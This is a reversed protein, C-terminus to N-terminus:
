GIAGGGAVVVALVLASTWGADFLAAAGVAEAFGKGAGLLPEKVFGTLAFDFLLGSSMWGEVTGWGVRSPCAVNVRVSPNFIPRMTISAPWPPCSVPVIPGVPSISFSRQRSTASRSPLSM